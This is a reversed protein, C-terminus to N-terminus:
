WSLKVGFQIQRPDFSATPRGADTWIVNVDAVNLRNWANFIDVMGDVKMREGINFRKAVRLDNFITHPRTGANRPLNGRLPGSAIGDTPNSDIFCAPQIWGTPSTVSRVAADGCASTGPGSVELPRDTNSSLDFNNDSGTLVNFPRGSSWELIPAVTWGSLIAHKASGKSGIEGSQYVGSLVIRNRQDFTSRSREDSPFRSDQPALLSQLDTSDDIAHSWTHALQFEYKRSFRKKITTTLGHYNSNGNSFNAIMDSFPVQNNSIGLLSAIPACAAALPAFSSPNIGGVTRFFSVLSANIWPQGTPNIGCPAFGSVSGVALPNTTLTSGSSPDTLSREWNVILAETDVPNANIPRNLHRGLNMNYNFSVVFDHGMDHEFGLNAQESYAYQFNKAVPFGFPQVTLPVGNSLYNQQIFVSDPKFADFRQENPLFGFQANGGPYCSGDFTGQFLTGANLNSGTPSCAATPDGGFFALQPAQSGDTIDSNFALALLPHDYFIGFSARVVTKQDNWPDWAFGIRPAINDTDRPIGQTIGLKDQAAASLANVPKFTPTFEVDYRLGYNLTFNPRIRWSDELYLGLTNNSFSDHPNGIGQVFVQPLGLGYAQIPSFAPFSGPLGLASPSVNGFNYLGGFNVTFDATLPLHNVDVGFKLNHDHHTWSFNDVFQYRNETRHVFSFPERGFFAFGPINIAIGQGDPVLDADGATDGIGSPNFELGRHAYQFRFENITRDNISWTHGLIGNVDRFNQRSTRSFSNQGFVQNQGNVQIGTVRSPTVSARLILSQTNSLRHDLRLSYVDTKESIPYNGILSNLAIYSGPNPTGFAPFVQGGPWLLGASTGTLAHNGADAYAGESVCQSFGAPLANFFALQEPTEFGTFFGPPILGSCSSTSGLDVSQLGFGNQGISTFGTEQRRTGEFSFFYFTKDKKLAGGLTFGYQARTYSPDPITSFPNTADVANSRLFGFANGHFDNQGSKSVINIVGGAARGYEANYNSTLVQFEQVAEQSVTSRIGNVSNDVADMGDVNVLNARARQGSFNVGSTPAAGISPASDRKTSPDLLTFNVYNRGNTPLNQIEMSQITRATTSSHTDVAEAQANVDVSETTSVTLEFNLNASQGVTLNVNKRTAKGFGPASASITYDGPALNLIQYQGSANTTTSREIGKSSNSATVTASAVMAGKPDKIAGSLDATASGQAMATISFLVMVCVVAALKMLRITMADAKTSKKPNVNHACTHSKPFV